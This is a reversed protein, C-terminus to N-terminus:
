QGKATEQPEGQPAPAVLRARELALIAGTIHYFSSAPAPEEVFAGDVTMKDYWLGAMPADLYRKLARAAQAASSAYHPEGTIEFALCAARIRETQPWLRAQVDRHTTDTLLANIAVGRDRDVGFREALAILEVSTAFARRNNVRTSWRMLLWAWEGPEVIQGDVVAAPTWDHDFQELIFGSAPDRFCRLALGVIEEALPLWKQDGSADMWALCAELLHMHSNSTLPTTASATEEFGAIPHRFDSRLRILLEDAARRPVEEGLRRYAYALGLLVFAQDYLVADDILPAGQASVLTRFLHDPRRYRALLFTLGHRVAQEVPGSWGLETALCYAYIQRPHLRARRPEAAPVGDQQLREHFGGHVGDAGLTWWCPYAYDLLWAKLATAERALADISRDQLKASNV